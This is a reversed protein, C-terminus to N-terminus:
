RNQESTARTHERISRNLWPIFMRTVAKAGAEIPHSDTRGAAFQPVLTNEDPRGELIALCNFLDFVRVNPLDVGYETTLWKSWKRARKANEPTTSAKVLPPTSMAIFLIGPNDTFTALLSNYYKKYQDLMLDSTINSAPFCSKFMIIDHKKKEGTLKWSKIVDFYMPTNFNIPFDPPDTHDGIVYDGVMADQYYISYFDINDATLADRLGGDLISKGTSHHHWVMTMRDSPM